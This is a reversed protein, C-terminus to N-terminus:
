DDLRVARGGKWSPRWRACNDRPEGAPQRAAAVLDAWKGRELTGIEQEMRLVQANHKTGMTLADLAPVGYDILLELERAMAHRHPALANGGADTGGPWSYM